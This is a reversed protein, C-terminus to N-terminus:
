NMEAYPGRYFIQFSKQVIERAMGSYDLPHRGKVQLNIKEIKQRQEYM